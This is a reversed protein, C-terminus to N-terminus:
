YGAILLVGGVSLGVAINVLKVKIFDKGSVALLPLMGHGDQVISGAALISLPLADKAYLMVFLLHPGSEPIIGLLVALFLMSVRNSSVFQNIDVWLEVYGLVLLVGFTWLFIGPVHKKAIHRWLHEDLFHEPATVVILLAAANVVLLVIRLWNWERPGLVGGAVAITASLLVVLLTARRVSVEKKSRVFERVSFCLRNKDEHIVMEGCVSTPGLFREGLVRDVAWAVGVGLVAMFLTLLVATKPFLALMVLAEGGSTAIMAAILAGLTMRGHTYLAVVIYAGLCGPTAGLLAALLYQKPRSSGLSQIWAGGTRVNIYEVFMLMVAAFLTIVAASKFAEILM